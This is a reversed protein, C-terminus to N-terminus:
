GKYGMEGQEYLVLGVAVVAATEMRLIRKGLTAPTFGLSKVFEIEKVDFGGEPGVLLSISHGGYDSLINKIDTGHEEEWFVIGKEDKTLPPLKQLHQVASIKPCRGRGSQEAAERVIRQWREMKQNEDQINQILSRQTVLPILQTVGLETTKQLIWELKDRQTLGFFLTVQTDAESMATRKGIVNGWVLNNQVEILEVDYEIGLNDLVVVKESHRLRLVRAIQHSIDKPFEVREGLVYGTELFFRHL